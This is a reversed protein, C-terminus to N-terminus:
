VETRPGREECREKQKAEAHSHSPPGPCLRTTRGDIEPSDLTDSSFKPDHNDVTSTLTFACSVRQAKDGPDELTAMSSILRMTMHPSDRRERGVRKPISKEASSVNQLSATRSRVPRPSIMSSQPGKSWRSGTIIAQCPVNRLPRAETIMTNTRCGWLCEPLEGGYRCIGVAIGWFVSVSCTTLLM